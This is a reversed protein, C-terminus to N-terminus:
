LWLLLSSLAFNEMVYLIESIKAPVLPLVLVIAVFLFLMSLLLKCLVDFRILGRYILSIERCFLQRLVSFLISLGVFLQSSSHFSLISGLKIPSLSFSPVFVFMLVM